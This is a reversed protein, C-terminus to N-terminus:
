ESVEKKLIEECYDNSLLIRVCTIKTKQIRELKAKMRKEEILLRKIQKMCQEFAKNEKDNM